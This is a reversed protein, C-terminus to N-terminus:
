VESTVTDAQEGQLIINVVKRRTQTPCVCHNNNNNNSYCSFITRDNIHGNLWNFCGSVNISSTSFGCMKGNMM